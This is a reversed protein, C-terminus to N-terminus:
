TNLSNVKEKAMDHTPDIELVKFFYKRANQTDGVEEFLIAVWLMYNINSPRLKTSELMNDIAWMINDMSYLIEAKTVYYKPNDWKLTLIKDILINATEFDWRDFYIQCIQWISKHDDQEKELIKKLLPLAKKNNGISFYLDGLMRIFEMNDPDIALWENLKKEYWEIMWKEKLAIAEIRIKDLQHMFKDKNRIVPKEEVVPLAELATRKSFSSKKSKEILEDKVYKLNKKFEIKSYIGNIYNIIINFNKVIFLIIPIVVLLIWLWLWIKIEIQVM